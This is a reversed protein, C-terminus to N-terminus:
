VTDNKPKIFLTILLIAAFILSLVSWIKLDSYSGVNALGILGGFAYFCLATIAGAKTKRAAVAIIGAILMCAALMIGASGSVEGNDSITNGIGAVCSQLSIIVFLVMSIIGIIMRTTKVIKVGRLNQEIM